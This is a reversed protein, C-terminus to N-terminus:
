PQSRDEGDVVYRLNFACDGKAPCGEGERVRSAEARFTEFHVRVIQYLVSPAPARPEYRSSSRVVDVATAFPM